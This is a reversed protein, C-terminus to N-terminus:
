LTSSPADVHMCGTFYIDPWRVHTAAQWPLWPLRSAKLDPHTGDSDVLAICVRGM